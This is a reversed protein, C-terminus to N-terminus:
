ISKDWLDMIWLGMILYSSILNFIPPGISSFCNKFSLINYLVIPRYNLILGRSTILFIALEWGM